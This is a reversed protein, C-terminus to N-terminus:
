KVMDRFRWLEVLRYGNYRGIQVFMAITFFHLEPYTLLLDGIEQWRLIAYCCAAVVSTGLVLQLAFPTGDEETTVFFREILTTLIVLPLLVARVGSDPAVYAILSVGFVILLIILTLIISSRPVMLLHLRDLLIRGFYGVTLVSVLIVLGTSLEAYIFSMALLAPAFTGLTRLGIINRFVATILAGLPLLLMLSMVEHMEIPLRTLDFIQSPRQKEYQLLNEPPAKRVVSYLATLNKIGTGRVLEEGDRRIAVFDYPMMRSKGYTPDFPVWNHGHFVEVWVHPTAQDSQRMEFGSVLRAPVRAARCLTVLARAKGLPTARHNALAYGVDDLGEEKTGDKLNSCYEFLKQVYEGETMEGRPISQLVERVGSSATDLFDASRVFRSRAASSLSVFRNQEEWANRPRLRIEFEATAQYKGPIQTTLVLERNQSLPTVKEEGQLNIHTTEEREVEAASTSTPLGLHVEAQPSDVEFDVRYTLQWSSDQLGEKIETRSYYRASFALLGLLIFGVTTLQSLVRASV